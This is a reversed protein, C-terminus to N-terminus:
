IDSDALQARQSSLRKFVANRQVYMFYSRAIEFVTKIFLTFMHQDTIELTIHWRSNSLLNRQTYHNTIPSLPFGNEVLTQESASM